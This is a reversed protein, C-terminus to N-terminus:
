PAQFFKPFPPANEPPKPLQARAAELAAEKVFARKSYKGHRKIRSAREILAAEEDTFEVRVNM